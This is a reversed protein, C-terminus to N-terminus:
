SLNILSFCRFSYPLTRVLKVKNVDPNESIYVTINGSAYYPMALALKRGPVTGLGM